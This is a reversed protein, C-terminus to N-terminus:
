GIMQVSGVIEKHSDSSNRAFAIWIVDPLPKGGATRGEYRQLTSGSVTAKGLFSPNDLKRGLNGYAQKGDVYLPIEVSEDLNVTPPVGLEPEVMRAYDFATKPFGHSETKVKRHDSKEKQQAPGIGMLCAVAGALLVVPLTKM